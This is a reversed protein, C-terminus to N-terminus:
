LDADEDPYIDEVDEDDPSDERILPKEEEQDVEFGMLKCVEVYKEWTQWIPSIRGSQAYPQYYRYCYRKLWSDMWEWQNREAKIAERYHPFEEMMQILFEITVFSFSVHSKRYVDITKLVGNQRNHLKVTRDMALGDDMGVLIHMLRMFYGVEEPGVRDVGKKIFAIVDGSFNQDEWAMVGVIKLVNTLEPNDYQKEVVRKYLKKLVSKLSTQNELKHLETYPEFTLPSHDAQHTPLELIHCQRLLLQIIELLYEWKPPILRHQQHVQYNAGTQTMFLNVFHRLFRFSLLFKRQQHGMECWARLVGWYRKFRVWYKAAYEHASAWHYILTSSACTFNKRVVDTLNDQEKEKLYELATTVLDTFGEIVLQDRCQLAYEIIVNNNDQVCYIKLFWECAALNDKFMAKIYSLFEPFIDRKDAAHALTEFCFEVARQTNLFDKTKHELIRFMDCAFRFFTSHYIHQERAFSKNDELIKEKIRKTILSEIPKENLKAAPPEPDPPNKEFSMKIFESIIGDRVIDEKVKEEEEFYDMFSKQIEWRPVIQDLWSKVHEDRKLTNLIERDPVGFGRRIPNHDLVM